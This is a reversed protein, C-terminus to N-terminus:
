VADAGPNERLHGLWLEMEGLNRDKLVDDTVFIPGEARLALAIADSPRSDVTWERDDSKLHIKAFYTSNKIEGIVVKQVSVGVHDLISKLLDHTMPRPPKIGESAFRIANGEAHGAPIPLVERNEADRLIIVQAETGVDPIVQSVRM